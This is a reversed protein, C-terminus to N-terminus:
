EGMDVAKVISRTMGDPDPVTISGFGIYVLPKEDREAKRIFEDLDEPPSWDTDSNALTWYGTIAIDDHWDLPKPVVCSSFNYMFPVKTQGLKSMDTAPLGLMEKRWPNIQPATAKWIINDFLVYSSYNFGPGMEVAPVMFAQPYKVTRTWPMTFARMYPIKLAEAIHIGAMTSPSEILVDADHCSEWADRLLDDLWTKFNGLSEKFFGPSFMAHDVSLKMLAAPDGGAQRHEIGYGEVWTKFEDHTVIVCQHGDQMLGLSLAIYPQIDGRSGITLMCFRRPRVKRRGGFDNIIAPMHALAADPVAMSMAAEPTINLIDITKVRDDVQDQRVGADDLDGIELTNAVAAKREREDEREQEHQGLEPNEEHLKAHDAVLQNIRKMTHSRANPSFFDFHLDHRGSIKVAMGRFKFRFSDISEAGKVDHVPFRYKIDRVPGASKRWFCLYKDSLIIHGRFPVTRNLYCRKMWVPEHEPIGLVAKALKAKLVKKASGERPAHEDDESESDSYDSDSSHDTTHSDEDRVIDKRSRHHLHKPGPPGKLDKEPLGAGGEAEPLRLLDSQGIQFVPAPREIGDMYERKTKHAANIVEELKEAFAARENLVGFKINVATRLEKHGAHGFQIPQAPIISANSTLDEPDASPGRFAGQGTKAVSHMATEGRNGTNAQLQGDKSGDTARGDAVERGTGYEQIRSPQSAQTFKDHLTHEDSQSSKSRHHFTDSIKSFVSRSQKEHKEHKKRAEAAEFDRATPNDPMLKNLHHSVNACNDGEMVDIDLSILRAFDMYDDTGVFQVRDLPLAIRMMEWGGDDENYVPDGTMTPADPRASMKKAREDLRRQYRRARGHQFLASELDRHWHLVSEQTDVTFVLYKEGKPSTYRIRIEFANEPDLPYLQEVSEVAFSLDL